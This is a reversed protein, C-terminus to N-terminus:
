EAELAITLAIIAKLEGHTLMFESTHNKSSLSFNFGEGNHWETVEIFGNEDTLCCYKNLKDSVAKLKYKEM